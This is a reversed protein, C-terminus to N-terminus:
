QRAAGYQDGTVINGGTVSGGVAVAREGSAAVNVVERTVQEAEPRAEDWGGAPLGKGGRLLAVPFDEAVTDFFPVQDAGGIQRASAPVARSLHGMLGSLRVETEGPRAAAGQFAELLHYTYVSLAGDARVWSVQSGRSSTFVARGEGQKLAELLGKGETAAARALGAPLKLPKAADKSTAMGQAHCSDIVVLLRRAKVERIAATLDDASLASGQIDHPEADHSILYYRGTAADLWGHGSFYVVATADPEAAARGKLWALGDLAAQRTAADDHLLRLHDADDPYGCLTPDALVARVAKVDKVTVPLSWPSYQTTGVGILLAHGHSFTQAM